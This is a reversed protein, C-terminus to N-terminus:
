WNFREPTKMELRAGKWANTGGRFWTVDKYGADIAHLAGNYGEWCQSSICMFVVPRNKDPGVIKEMAAAFRSKEAGFFRGDGAGPLWYAGPITERSKSDLVDVVVVQRNADLLAKLALARIVKAGPITTPTPKGHPPGQPTTSPAIGWDKDEDAFARDLAPKSSQAQGAAAIALAAADNEVKIPKVQGNVYKITGVFTGDPKASVTFVAGSVSTVELITESASTRIEAGKFPYVKEDSFNYSGLALFSGEGKQAVESIVLTRTRKEGEVTALWTGVLKSKLDVLSLQQARVPSFFAALLAFFVVLRGIRIM